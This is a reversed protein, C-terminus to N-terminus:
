STGSFILGLKDNVLSEFNTPLQTDVNIQSSLIQYSLLSAPLSYTFKTTFTQRVPDFFQVSLVYNYDLAISRIVDAIALHFPSTTFSPFFVNVRDWDVFLTSPASSDGQEFSCQFSALTCGCPYSEQSQIGPYLNKFGNQAYLTFVVLGSVTGVFTHDSVQVDLLTPYLDNKSSQTGAGADLM